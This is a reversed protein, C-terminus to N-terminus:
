IYIGLKKSVEFFGLFFRLFVSSFGFILFIKIFSGFDIEVIGLLGFFICLFGFWILFMRYPGFLDM